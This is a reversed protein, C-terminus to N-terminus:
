SVAIVAEYKLGFLISVMKYVINEFAYKSPNTCSQLLEM